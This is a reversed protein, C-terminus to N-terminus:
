VNINLSLKKEKQEKVLAMQINVYHIFDIQEVKSKFVRRPIIIYNKSLLKLLIYDENKVLKEICEWDYRSKIKDQYNISVFRRDLNLTLVSCTTLFHIGTKKILKKISFNSHTYIVFVIFLTVFIIILQTLNFLSTYGEIMSVILAMNASYILFSLRYFRRTIIILDKLELQYVLTYGDDNKQSKEITM